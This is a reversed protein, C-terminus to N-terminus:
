GDWACEVCIVDGAVLVIDDVPEDDLQWDFDWKPIDLLVREGPTGPKSTMRFSTGIEHMHGWLAVIQGPTAPLDCTSSTMGAMGTMGTMGAMGAMGTMGAVSAGCVGMLANAVIASFGGETELLRAIAADRDCLPGTESASCPIEAPGLYLTLQIPDLVRGAAVIVSRDPALDAWEDTYRDHIQTVFFDGPAMAIGTDVPLTTSAQGLTWSLIQKVEGARGGFGALGSCSWGVAPDKADAQEAATCTAAEARFLLAHHVVEACDAEIGYGQLFAPETLQPDYIQCRYDDPGATSGQYPQGTLAVDRELPPVVQRAPVLPTTAEVDIVGLERAWARLSERDADSLRRDDCADGATALSVHAAGPGAQTSTTTAPSTTAPSTTAASAAAGTAPPVEATSDCDPRTSCAVLAVGLMVEAEVGIIARRLPHGAQRGGEDPAGSRDDHGGRSSM